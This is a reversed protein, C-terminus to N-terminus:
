GEEYKDWIQTSSNPLINVMANRVHRAVVEAEEYSDHSEIVVIIKM